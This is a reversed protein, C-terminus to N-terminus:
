PLPPRLPYLVGQTRRGAFSVTGTIGNTVYAEDPDKDDTGIDLRIGEHSIEVSEISVENEGADLSGVDIKSPWANELYYRAVPKSDSDYMVLVSDTRAGAAAWSVFASGATASTFMVPMGSAPEAAPAAQTAVLVLALLSILALLRAM